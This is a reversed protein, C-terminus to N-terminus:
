AVEVVYILSSTKERKLLAKLAFVSAKTLGKFLPASSARHRESLQSIYFVDLPLAHWGSLRLGNKECFLRFSKPYFHWLHRPVDYGAWYKGYYGADFSSCNPLAIVCKGKANLLRKIESIYAFPDHFHELVHWLTICDFTAGQLGSLGAPSIASINFHEKSYARASDNIEVGKVEWGSNMMFSAFHGTGSGIDLLTGTQLGTIKRVLKRKRKLMVRRVAQYLKNTLGKSIDSHSIYEESEYYKGIVNEEPYDQTFMFGCRKCERIRFKENSVLHDTCELKDSTNESGCLPCTEHHVM